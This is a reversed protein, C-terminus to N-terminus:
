RQQRRNLWERQKQAVSREHEEAGRGIEQVAPDKGLVDAYRVFARPDAGDLIKTALELLKKRQAEASSAGLAASANRPAGFYGPWDDRKAIRRLDALDEKKGTYSQAARYASASLDPRFFLVSSHESAGAHVTFGDEQLQTPTLFQKALDCCFSMDFLGYLHVMEGDYTDHFFDGAANLARHHRPAGHNHVLFIWRFGQEGLEAALDMYVDRLTASRLVYTGPFRYKDGIQNAADSGLPITPFMVVTWGPKAAVLGEGLRTAQWENNLTDTGSPLYPGHEELIGGPIIVVTKTRDLAKIQETNLEALKLMQASSAGSLVLALLWRARLM